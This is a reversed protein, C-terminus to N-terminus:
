FLAGIGKKENEIIEESAKVLTEVIYNGIDDESPNEIGTQESVIQAFEDTYEFAFDASGDKNESIQELSIIEDSLEQDALFEDLTIVNNYFYDYFRDEDKVGCDLCNQYFEQIMGKYFDAHGKWRKIKEIDLKNM